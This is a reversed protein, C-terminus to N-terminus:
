SLKNYIFKAFMCADARHDNVEKFFDKIEEKTAKGSGIVQKKCTSDIVECVPISGKHAVLLIIGNVRNHSVYTSRHATVIPIVIM